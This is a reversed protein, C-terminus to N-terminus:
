LERVLFISRPAQNVKKQQMWILNGKLAPNKKFQGFHYCKIKKFFFVGLKKKSIMKVQFESLTFMECFFVHM